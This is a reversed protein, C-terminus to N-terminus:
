AVMGARKRPLFKLRGASSATVTEWGVKGLECGQFRKV